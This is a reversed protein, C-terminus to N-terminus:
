EPKARVVPVDTRLLNQRGDGTLVIDIGDRDIEVYKSIVEILEERLQKMREPSLNLRDQVLVFRLRKKAVESSTPERYGLLQKFVNM